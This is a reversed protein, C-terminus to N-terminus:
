PAGPEMRIEATSSLCFGSAGCAPALYQLGPMFIPIAHNIRVQVFWPTQNDTPPCDTNFLVGYGTPIPWDAGVGEAPTAGVTTATTWNAAYSYLGLQRAITNAKAAVANRNATSDCPVTSQTAAWRATDRAVQTMTNISWLILAFQILAGVIFLFLGIVIAFEAM